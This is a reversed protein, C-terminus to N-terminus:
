WTRGPPIRCPGCTRRWPWRSAPVRGTARRAIPDRPRLRRRRRAILTFVAAAALAAVATLLAILHNPVTPSNLSVTVGLVPRTPEASVETSASSENGAANVATVKFYYVTGNVLGTVSGDTARTPGLSKVPQMRPTTAYYVM